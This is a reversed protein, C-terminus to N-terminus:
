VVVKDDSAPMKVALHIIKGCNASYGHKEGPQLLVGDWPEMKYTEGEVTIEGGEPFWIIEESESHYHEDFKGNELSSHYFIISDIPKDFKHELLIRTERGFPRTFKKGESFKIIEM